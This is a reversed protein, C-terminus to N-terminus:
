WGIYWKKGGELTSRDEPLSFLDYLDNVDSRYAFFQGDNHDNDLARPNKLYLDKFFEYSFVKRAKWRDTADTVVIPIGSYAYKTVFETKSLNSLRLAGTINVCFDCTHAPLSVQDLSLWSTLCTDGDMASRLSLQVVGAMLGIAMVIPLLIFIITSPSIIWLLLQLHFPAEQLAKVTIFEARLSNLVDKESRNSTELATKLIEAVDEETKPEVCATEQEHEEEFTTHNSEACDM